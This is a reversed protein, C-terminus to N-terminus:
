GDLLNKDGKKEKATLYKVRSFPTNISSVFGERSLYKPVFLFTM